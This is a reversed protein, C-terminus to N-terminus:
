DERSPLSDAKNRLNAVSKSLIAIFTALYMVLFITMIPVSNSGNNKEPFSVFSATSVCWSASDRYFTVNVDEEKNSQDYLRVKHLPSAVGYGKSLNRRFFQEEPTQQSELTERLQSWSAMPIAELLREVKVNHSLSMKNGRFLASTMDGFMSTFPNTLMRLQPLSRSYPQYHNAVPFKYPSLWHSSLPGSILNWNRSSRSSVTYRSAVLASIVVPSSLAIATLGCPIRM